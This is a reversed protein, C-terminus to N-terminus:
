KYLQKVKKYHQNLLILLRKEVESRGEQKELQLYYHFADEESIIKRDFFSERRNNVENLIMPKKDILDFLASQKPNLLLFKLKEVDQVCRLIQIIDIEKMFAHETKEFLKEKVNKKGRWIAKLAYKVYNLINFQIGRMKQHYQTFEDFNNFVKTERNNEGDGTLKRKWEKMKQLVTRKPSTSRKELVSATASRKLIEPSNEYNIIKNEKMKQNMLFFLHIMKSQM